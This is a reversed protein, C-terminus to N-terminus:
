LRAKMEPLGLVEARLEEQLQILLKCKDAAGEISSSNGLFELQACISAMGEVGTTSFSSNLAHAHDRLQRYDKDQIAKDLKLLRESIPSLFATFYDRVFDQAGDGELDRFSQLIGPNIMKKKPKM